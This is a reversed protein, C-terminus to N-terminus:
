YRSLFLFFVCLWVVLIIAAIILVIAFTGRLEEDDHVGGPQPQAM